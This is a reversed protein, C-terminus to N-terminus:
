SCCSGQSFLSVLVMDLAVGTGYGTAQGLGLWTGCCTGRGTDLVTARGNGLWTGYVTVKGTACWTAPLRGLIGDLLKGLLVGLITVHM